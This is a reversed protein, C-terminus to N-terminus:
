ARTVWTSLKAVIDIEETAIIDFQIGLNTSEALWFKMKSYAVPNSFDARYGFYWFRNNVLGIQVLGPIYWMRFCQGYPSKVNLTFLLVDQEYKIGAKFM